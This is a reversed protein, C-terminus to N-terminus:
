SRGGQTELFATPHLPTYHDKQRQRFADGSSTGAYCQRHSYFPDYPEISQGNLSMSLRKGRVQGSLYKHFTLALRNRTHTVLANFEAESMTRNESLRDCNHWIVETGNKKRM